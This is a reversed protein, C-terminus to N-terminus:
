GSTPCSVSDVSGTGLKEIVDKAAQRDSEPSGGNVLAAEVIWNDGAVWYAKSLGPVDCELFSRQAEKHVGENLHDSATLVQYGTEGKTCFAGKTIGAEAGGFDALGSKDTKEVDSCELAAVIKKVEPPDGVKSTADGGCSALMVAIAMAAVTRKM